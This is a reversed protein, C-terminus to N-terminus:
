TAWKNPPLGRFIFEVTTSPVLELMNFSALDGIFDMIAQRADPLTALRSVEPLAELLQYYRAKDHLERAEALLAVEQLGLFRASEMMDAMSLWHEAGSLVRPTFIVDLFLGLKWEVPAIGFVWDGPISRALAQPPAKIDMRAMAKRTHRELQPLSFRQPLQETAALSMALERCSAHLRRAEAEMGTLSQAEREREWNRRAEERRRQEAELDAQRQAEWRAKTEEARKERDFRALEDLRAQVDARRKADAQRREEARIAAERQRQRELAVEEDARRNRENAHAIQGALKAELEPRAEELRPNVIWMANFQNYIEEELVNLTLTRQV